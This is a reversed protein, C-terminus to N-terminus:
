DAEPRNRPWDSGEGTSNSRGSARHKAFRQDAYAASEAVEPYSSIQPMDASGGRSFRIVTDVEDGFIVLMRIGEIRAEEYKVPPRRAALLAPIRAAESAKMQYGVCAPVFPITAGCDDDWAWTDDFANTAGIALM